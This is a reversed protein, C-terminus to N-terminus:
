SDFLNFALVKFVTGFAAKAVIIIKEKADDM